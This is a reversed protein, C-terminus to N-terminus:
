RFGCDLYSLSIVISLDTLHMRAASNEHLLKGDNTYMSSPPWICYLRSTPVDCGLVSPRTTNTIAIVYVYIVMFNEEGGNSQELLILLAAELNLHRCTLM